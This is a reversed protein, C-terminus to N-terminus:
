KSRAKKFLINKVIIFFYVFDTTFPHRQYRELYKKESAVIEDFSKPMDAYFPPLLGPRFKTRLQQIEEPYLNFYQQSLPRVGVLKMERKLINVFMPLEDIWFKRCIKGLTTIRFDNKFKGGEDLDNRDYVFEQIFESYPHMTRLKYVDIIKGNKGIRKLRILPGYTPNFDLLPYSTKKMVYWTYNDILKHDIYEFGCSYHRGLVEANSLSRNIEKNFHFYIRKIYPLKPFVRNYIFYHFYVIYNILLPYQKLIQEKRTGNTIACSIFYGSFELKVSVSEIFKNLKGIKNFPALNVINKSIYQIKLVNFRSTSNLYETDPSRKDIHTKIFDLVEQGNEERILDLIDSNSEPYVDARRALEPSSKYASKILKIHEIDEKSLIINAYKYSMLFILWLFNLILLIILFGLIVIRSPFDIQFIYISSLLILTSVGWCFLHKKLFSINSSKIKLHYKRTVLSILLYLFSFSIFLPFFKQFVESFSGDKFYVSLSYAAFLLLIDFFFRFNM